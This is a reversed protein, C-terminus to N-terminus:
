QARAAKTLSRILETEKPDFPTGDKRFVDHFWPDPEATYKRDWSDWPYITQSKGNVLGWNYAAVKDKRFIPLIGEFKSNNGRAMYETCLLPRGLGKLDAVMKATRDPGAYSHFSIVDSQALCIKDVSDPEELWRPDGWVGATLPQSPNIERAWAFTKELLEAARDRKLAPALDPDPNDVGYKNINANDPENFLDWALVRRDNKFRELVGQV